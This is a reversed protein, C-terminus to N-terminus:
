RKPGFYAVVGLTLTDQSKSTGVPGMYTAGGLESVSAGRQFFPQNSWDHRYELRALLGEPLKYEGTFTVEKLQQQIGTGTAFGDRDNFWEVRPTFSVKGTAQYHIAVAAGYWVQSGPGINKDSGYDFNLYANWKATPTLLLTTDYLNRWGKNTNPKEPGTHFNNTWAFKKATYTGTFMLTKGTNNDEVNNWGNVVMVGGTFHKGVPFSTRVGFHYYPIAWAFLLSRSYNWNGYSEIVEAGASTVFKGFDVEFGKAKPPKFSVYAQELYRFIEPAKEGAAMIDFTRGFGFDVQFGVPDATHALSLKAMNLSFQNARVDFNYLQNYGSAPHNFNFSYYGDILGSFDIPGASWTPSSAPAPEQAPPTAAPAQSAAPAPSATSSASSAQDAPAAAAQGRASSAMALGFLCLFLCARSMRM